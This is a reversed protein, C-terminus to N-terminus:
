LRKPFEGPQKEPEAEGREAPRRGMDGHHFIFHDRAAPPQRFRLKQVQEACRIEDGAGVRRLHGNMDSQALPAPAAQEERTEAEDEWRHKM